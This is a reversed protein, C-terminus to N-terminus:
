LSQGPLEWGVNVFARVLTYRGFSDNGCVAAPGAMVWAHAQLGTEARRVGFCIAHPVRVLGLLLRACLAQPYCTAQWPSYRAAIGIAARVHRARRLQAPTVLPVWVDTGADRGHLGALHKLPVVRLLLRCLGLLVWAPGLFVLTAGSQRRLTGWKSVLLGAM